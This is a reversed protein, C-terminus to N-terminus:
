LLHLRNPPRIRRTVKAGVHCGSGGWGPTAGCAPYLPFRLRSPTEPPSSTAANTPSSSLYPAISFSRECLPRPRCPQRPLVTGTIFRGDTSPPVLKPPTPFPRFCLTTYCPKAPATLHLEHSSRADPCLYYWVFGGTQPLCVQSTFSNIM